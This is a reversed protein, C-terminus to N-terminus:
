SSGRCTAASAPFQHFRRARMLATKAASRAAPQRKEALLFALAHAMHARRLQRRRAGLSTPVAQGKQLVINRSARAARLSPAGSSISM